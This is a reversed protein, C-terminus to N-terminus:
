RRYAASIPVEAQKIVASENGSDVTKVCYNYKFFGTLV